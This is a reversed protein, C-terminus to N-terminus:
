LCGQIKIRTGLTLLDKPTEDYGRTYDIQRTKLREKLWQKRIVNTWTENSENTDVIDSYYWGTVENSEIYVYKILERLVLPLLGDLETNIIEWAKTNNIKLEVTFLDFVYLPNFNIGSGATNQFTILAPFEIQTKNTPYGADKWAKSYFIRDNTENRYFAGKNFAVDNFEEKYKLAAFTKLKDDNRETIDYFIKLIDTLNLRM